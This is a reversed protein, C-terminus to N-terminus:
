ALWANTRSLFLERSVSINSGQPLNWQVSLVEIRPSTLLKYRSDGAIPGEISKEEGRLPVTCNGARNWCIMRMIRFRQRPSTSKNSGDEQTSDMMGTKRPLEKVPQSGWITYDRWALVVM